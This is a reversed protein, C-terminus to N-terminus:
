AVNAVLMSPEHKRTAMLRGASDFSRDHGRFRALFDAGHDHVVFVQSTLHKAFENGRMRFYFDDGFTRVAELGHFAGRLEFGIKQKEIDLHGLEITELNEFQDSGA